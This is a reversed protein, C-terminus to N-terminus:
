AQLRKQGTLLQQMLGKKQAELKALKRKYLAIEQDAIILIKAIAKQEEISAPLLAVVRIFDKFKCQWTDSVLGQSYQFFKHIIPHTHFLYIFFESCANERPKLITYAPSVIGERDSLASRGQWMRMTNYGIDNPVIRKYKSKNNNSTNKKNSQDQPYVGNQGISLLKLEDFGTEKREQFFDGLSQMEWDGEGGSAAAFSFGPVRVAGSLLGQMLGKKREDLQQLLNRTTTIARDWTTLCNAIRTQEKLPPLPIKFNKIQQIALKPQANSTRSVEIRNQVVSSRLIELLFPRNCKINTLKDANETLNAGDLERSVVGVMGLTGAVTIFIDEHSITYRKISPFVDEPVYKITRTDVGGDYMDTVRIYPHPTIADVLSKGKPIRKGGKVDAVDEIRVM